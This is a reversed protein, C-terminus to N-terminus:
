LVNKKVTLTKMVFTWPVTNKIVFVEESCSPTCGKAFINKYKSIRVHDGIKFKPDNKDNEFDFNIYKSLKVDIAKM